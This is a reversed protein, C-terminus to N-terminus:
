FANSNKKRYINKTKMNRPKSRLKYNCCPCYIADGVDLFIECVNCRRHGLVYHGLKERNGTTNAKFRICIGNCYTM